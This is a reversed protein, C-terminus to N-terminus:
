PCVAGVRETGDSQFGPTGVEDLRNVAAALYYFGAGSAPSATDTASTGALEQLLCTPANLGGLDDLTARYVRYDGVSREPNWHLTTADSFGLGTVEGPPRWGAILGSDISFSAGDNPAAVIGQGIADTSIRFSSSAAVSGQAPRGGANFTSQEIRFSGSQQALAASGALLVVGAWRATKGM